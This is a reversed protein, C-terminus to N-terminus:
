VGRTMRRLVDTKFVFHHMLAAGAHLVILGLLVARLVEHVEAAAELGRFWALAGTVPLAVLLAYFAWHTLGALKQLLAAESAPPPPVGQSQRVALRVLTLAFVTFGGFVHLGVPVSPTVPQGDLLRDFAVTIPEHVIYQLAVLAVIIWHLRIQLRSYRDTM